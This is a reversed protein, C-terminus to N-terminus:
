FGFQIGLEPVIGLLFGASGGFAEQVKVAGSLAVRKSVLLRLGGGQTAFLPGATIWANMSYGAPNPNALETSPKLYVTVPVFADFEGVGAGVFVFPALPKALADKGFYYSYRAEAHLPPFPASPKTLAEYGLRVGATMNATLAYDASLMISLPGHAIGGEVEDSRGLQISQSITGDPPWSQGNSPNICGYGATNITGQTLSCVNQAGPLTYLDFGVSLGIWVRRFKGGSEGSCKSEKCSGSDCEDDNECEEGGGKKATTCKGDSCSGSACQDDKECEDGGAKKEACKGGVCANSSCQADKECDEGTAKKANCGPFDPPCEAGALESCQKPAEQGPLGPPAGAIQPKVAVTYPKNRSGSTAVPDNGANFGQIYYSVVGQTVDKCPILAGYGTGVKPMDVAKWDGMGPAKYKVIVRALQEGGSYEAYVPLPTRILEEPVPTHTFDGSPQSGPGPTAEGGGGAGKKKVENWVAELQPNKYSPDLDITPALALAQGFSARGDGENGALIQMAGLDRLLAGKLPPSCKDAGCKAIAAQLNKIAGPYDVNLFNEEIAKKQLGQAEKEARPDAALAPVTVLSALVVVIGLLVRRATAVLLHGHV